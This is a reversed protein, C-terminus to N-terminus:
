RGQIMAITATLSTLDKEITGAAYRRWINASVLRSPAIHSYQERTTFLLVSGSHALGASSCQALKDLIYALRTQDHTRTSSIFFLTLPVFNGSSRAVGALLYKELQHKLKAGYKTGRDLELWFYLLADDGSLIGAADPVIKISRRDDNYDAVFTFSLYNASWTQVLGELEWNMMLDGIEQLHQSVAQCADDRVPYGFYRNAKGIQLGHIGALISVGLSTPTHRPGAEEGVRSTQILERESLDRLYKPHDRKQRQSRRRSRYHDSTLGPHRIVQQLVFIHTRTLREFVAAAKGIERHHESAWVIPSVGSRAGVRRSKRTGVLFHAPNLLIPDSGTMLQYHHTYQERKQGSSVVVIGGNGQNEQDTIVSLAIEPHPTDWFYLTASITQSSHERWAVWSKALDLFWQNGLGQSADVMAILVQRSSPAPLCCLADLYPGGGSVRWPSIIWRPAQHYIIVPLIESRVKRLRYYGMMAAMAMDDPDRSAGMVRRQTPEDLSYVRRHYPQSDLIPIEHAIVGNMQRLQYRVQRERWGLVQQLFASSSCPNYYLFRALVETPMM